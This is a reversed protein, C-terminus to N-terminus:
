RATCGSLSNLAREELFRSNQRRAVHVARSISELAEETRELRALALGRLRHLEAEHSYGGTGLMELARKTTSLVLKPDDSHLAAEALLALFYPLDIRSGTALYSDLGSRIERLGGTGDGLTATAWGHLIHGTAVPVGHGQGSALDMAAQSHRMVEEPEGMLQYLIAAREEAWARCYAHDPQSALDLAAALRELAEASRGLYWLDLAAWSLCCVGLNEGLAAAILARHRTPDYLRWGQDAHHLSEAFDGRHLLCCALLEHSELLSTPDSFRDHLTLRRQLMANSMEHNGCNEYVAALHYLVASQSDPDNTAQARELASTLLSEVEPYAWGHVMVQALALMDRLSIQFPIQQEPELQEVLSLASQLQDMAERYAFRRLAQGASMQLYGVAPHPLQARSYHFALEGAREAARSGYSAELAAAVRAHLRKRRGSPIEAYIVEEYLSHAFTYEALTSSRDAPDNRRVFEHSRALQHFTEEVEEEKSDLARAVLAPSVDMGAVAAAELAQRESDSRGALRLQITRRLAEPVPGGMKTAAELLASAESTPGGAIENLLLDVFLPNGETRQHLLPSKTAGLKTQPLRMDVLLQVEQPTLPPVTLEECVGSVLLNQLITGGPRDADLLQETRCSAVTLMRAPLPSRALANLGDLTSPDSWQLDELVLVVPRLDSIANFAEVLERLMRLRTNGVTRAALHPLEAEDVLWPMEILWNPAHRALVAILQRDDRCLGDLASLLPMYPESEGQHDLCQGFALLVDSDAVIRNLFTRILTTKGIGAEGTVLATRRSGAVAEGLLSQLRDLERDRGVVWELGRPAAAVGGPPRPLESQREVVEGLFRYGRGHVTCILRQQRGGDELARRAAKIRSTLASESVFRTGWISEFLEQKGVVRDRNRILYATVDFVQPEVPIRRGHKRLEYLETDLEFDEFRYIM